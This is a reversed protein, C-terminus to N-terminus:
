AARARSTGQAKASRNAKPLKTTKKPSSKVCMAAIAERSYGQTKVHEVFTEMEELWQDFDNGDEDLTDLDFSSLQFNDLLSNKSASPPQQKRRSSSTSRHQRRSSSSSSKKPQRGRRATTADSEVTDTTISHRRSTSKKIPASDADTAISHRRSSSKNVPVSNLNTNTSLPDDLITANNKRRSSSSRKIKSSSKSSKSNKSSKISKSINSTSSTKSSMSSLSSVSDRREERQNISSATKPSPISEKKVEVAKVSPKEEKLNSALENDYKEFEIVETEEESGFDRQQKPSVIQKNRKTWNEFLSSYNIQKKKKKKKKRIAKKGVDSESQEFESESDSVIQANEIFYQQGPTLRSDTSGKKQLYSPYFMKNGENEDDYNEKELKQKTKREKMVSTKMARAVSTISSSLKNAKKV